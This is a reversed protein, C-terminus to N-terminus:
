GTPSRRRPADGLHDAWFAADTETRQTEQWATHDSTRLTSAALAEGRYAHEIDHWLHTFSAADGSVHHMAIVLGTQREGIPAITVRLLPGHELDFPEIAERRALQDFGDHDCAVEVVQIARDVSLETRDPDFAVRLTEHRLAATLISAALRDADLPGDIRYAYTVGYVPTGARLRREYLLAAQGSSVPAPGPARRPLPAPATRVGPKRALRETIL